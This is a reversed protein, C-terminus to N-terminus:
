NRKNQKKTDQYFRKDAKTNKRKTKDLWGTHEVKYCDFKPVYPKIDLLVTGDLIDVDAIHLTCGKISVLRVCSLGIPNPRSPARTAFLGRLSDDMYPKVKPRFESVRDFWYLLWIREFGRLDALADKYRATLEVTGELGEAFSPQIPTGSAQKFPSHIIGISKITMKRRM